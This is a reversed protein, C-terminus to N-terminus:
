LIDKLILSGDPLEKLDKYVSDIQFLEPKLKKIQPILKELLIIFSHGANKMAFCNRKWVDDIMCCFSFIGRDKISMSGAIKNLMLLYDGELEQNSPDCMKSLIEYLGMNITKDVPVDDFNKTYSFEGKLIEAFKKSQYTSSNKSILEASKVRCKKTNELERSKELNSQNRESQESIESRGESSVGNQKKFNMNNLDRLVEPDENFEETQDGIKSIGSISNFSQDNPNQEPNSDTGM